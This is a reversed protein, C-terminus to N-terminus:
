FGASCIPCYKPYPCTPGPLRVWEGADPDWLEDAVLVECDVPSVHEYGEVSLEVLGCVCPFRGLTIWRISLRRGMCRFM